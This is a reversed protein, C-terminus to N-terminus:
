RLLTYVGLTPCLPPEHCPTQRIGEANLDVFLDTFSEAIGRPV